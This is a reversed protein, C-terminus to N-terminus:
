DQLIEGGHVIIAWLILIDLTIIIASWWPYAAIWAFQSILHLGVVITGLILGSPSGRLLLRLM